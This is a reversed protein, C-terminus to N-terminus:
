FKGSVGTVGAYNGLRACDFDLSTMAGRGPKLGNEGTLSLPFFLSKGEAEEIGVRFGGEDFGKAIGDLFVGVREKRVTDGSWNGSIWGCEDVPFDRLEWIGGVGFM